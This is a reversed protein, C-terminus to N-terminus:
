LLDKVTINGLLSAPVISIAPLMNGSQSVGSGLLSIADVLM